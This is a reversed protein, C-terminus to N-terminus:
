IGSTADQQARGALECMAAISAASDDLQQHFATRM